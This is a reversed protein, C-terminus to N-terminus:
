LTELVVESEYIDDFVRDDVSRMVCVMRLHTPSLRPQVGYLIGVRSTIDHGMAM